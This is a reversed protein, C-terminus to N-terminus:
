GIRFIREGAIFQHDLLFHDPFIGDAPSPELLASELEENASLAGHEKLRASVRDLLM